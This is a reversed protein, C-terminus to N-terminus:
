EPRIVVFTKGKEELIEVEVSGEKLPFQLDRVMHAPIYVIGTNGKSPFSFKGKAVLRMRKDM